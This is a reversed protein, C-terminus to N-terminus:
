AMLADNAAQIKALIADLSAQDGTAAAAKIEEILPTVVGMLGTIAELAALITAANM